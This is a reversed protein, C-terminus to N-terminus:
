RRGGGRAEYAEALVQALHAFRLQRRGLRRAGGALHTLCSMDLSVVTTAGTAAVADLKDRLLRGSLEPQKISFSGGFGCCVPGDGLPVFGDGLLQSLYDEAVGRLGVGRLTRCSAHYTTPTPAPHPPVRVVGLVRHLYECLEWTRGALAEFRRLLRPHDQFLAPYGNRVTDVCSASPAVVADAGEFVELFHRALRRAGDPDGTNLWPQGCCTQAEPFSVAVGLSELVAVSARGVSPYLADVSCTLLLSVRRREGVPM